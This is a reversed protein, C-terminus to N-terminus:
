LISNTEMIYAEERIKQKIQVVKPIQYLAIACNRIGHAM